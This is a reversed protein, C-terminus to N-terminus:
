KFVAVISSYVFLLTVLITPAFSFVKVVINLKDDKAFLLIYAIKIILLAIGITVVCVVARIGINMGKTFEIGITLIAAPIVPLFLCLILNVFTYWNLNIENKSAVGYAKVKNTESIMIKETQEGREKLIKLAFSNAEDTLMANSVKYLLEETELKDLNKYLTDDM